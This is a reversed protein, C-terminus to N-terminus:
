LTELPQRPTGEELVPELWSAAYLANFASSRLGVTFRQLARYKDRAPGARLDAVHELADGFHAIVSITPEDVMRFKAAVEPVELSEELALLGNKDTDCKNLVRRSYAPFLHPYCLDPVGTEFVSLAVEMSIRPTGPPTSFRIDDDDGPTGARYVVFRGPRPLRMARNCRGAVQALTERGAM